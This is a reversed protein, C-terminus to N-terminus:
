QLLEPLLKEITKAHQEVYQSFKINDLVLFPFGIEQMQHIILPDHSMKLFAKSLKQVIDNPTHAPVAFGRFAGWETTFGLKSFREIEEANTYPADSMIGLIRVSGNKHYSIAEGLTMMAASVHKSLLHTIQQASSATHVFNFTISFHKEVLLSSVHHSTSHGSTVISLRKERASQIFQELTAYSSSMPVVLVQPDFCYMLIPTFDKYTYPAAKFLPNAIVSNTFTLLTYGDAPAKDATAQGLLGGDGPINHVFLKHGHFYKPAVQSFIRTTLDAGGGSSFPVIATINKTPFDAAHLNLPSLLSFLFLILPLFCQM